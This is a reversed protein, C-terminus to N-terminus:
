AVTVSCNPLPTLRATFTTNTTVPPPVGLGFARRFASPAHGLWSTGRKVDNALPTETAAPQGVVSLTLTISEKTAVPQDKADVASIHEIQGSDGEGDYEIEVLAIRRSALAELLVRKGHAFTSTSM